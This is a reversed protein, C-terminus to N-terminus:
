KHKPISIKLLQYQGLVMSISFRNQHKFPLGIKISIAVRPLLRLSSLYHLPPWTFLVVCVYVLSFSNYQYSARCQGSSAMHGLVGTLPLVAMGKSRSKWWYIRALSKLCLVWGGILLSLSIPIILKLLTITKNIISSTCTDEVCYLTPSKSEHPIGVSALTYEFHGLDWEKLIPSERQLYFFTNM